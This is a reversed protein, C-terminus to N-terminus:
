DEKKDPETLVTRGAKENVALIIYKRVSCGEEDAVAQLRERDGKMVRLGIQEMKEKAYKQAAKNRSQNYYKPKDEM